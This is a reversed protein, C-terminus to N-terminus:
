RSHVHGGKHLYEGQHIGGTYKEPAEVDRVHQHCDMCITTMQFYKYQAGELNKEKALSVLELAVEHFETDHTKFQGKTKNETWGLVECVGALGNAGSEIQAFDETVIGALVEQSHTLKEKMQEKLEGRSAAQSLDTLSVLLGFVGLLAFMCVYKGM